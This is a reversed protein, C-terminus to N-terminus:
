NNPAPQSPMPRAPAPRPSRKKANRAAGVDLKEYDTPIEFLGASQPGEQINQLSAATREGEWKIVFRLKRDVWATGTEGNDSTGTYKVTSRGDVKDDGVKTCTAMKAIAREWAPCAKEPDDIYFLPIAAPIHGPPSLVYSKADPLVMASQRKALDIIVYTKKPQGVIEFRVKNGSVAVKTEVGGEPKTRVLDASFQQALAPLSLGALSLLCMIGIALKRAV